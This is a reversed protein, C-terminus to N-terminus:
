ATQKNKENIEIGKYDSLNAKELLEGFEKLRGMMKHLANDVVDNNVYHMSTNINKLM